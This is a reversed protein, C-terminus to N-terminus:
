IVSLIARADMLAQGLLNQGNWNYPNSVRVDNEAMKIGWIADYPSAEVLIKHGTHILFPKLEPSSFKLISARVVVGYKEDNWVKENFNKVLRGYKKLKSPDHEEMIMKFTETDGMIFAKQAMMYQEASSYTRVGDSFNSMYWQSFVGKENPTKSPRFFFICEPMVGRDYLVKCREVSLM